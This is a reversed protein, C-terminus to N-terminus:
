ATIRLLHNQPIDAEAAPQLVLKVDVGFTFVFLDKKKGLAKLEREYPGRNQGRIVFDREELFCDEIEIIGEGSKDLADAVRLIAALKRVIEQRRRPLAAYDAHSRDPLAKRHYRAILAIIEVAEPPLTKWRNARIMDRALKHHRRGDPAVSWGIDHLLAAAELLFRAGAGMRHRGALQDFLLLALERVQRCHGPEPDHGEMFQDIEQRMAGSAALSTIPDMGSYQQNRDGGCRRTM